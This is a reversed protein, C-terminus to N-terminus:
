VVKNNDLRKIEAWIELEAINIFKGFRRRGHDAFDFNENEFCISILSMLLKPSPFYSLMEFLM